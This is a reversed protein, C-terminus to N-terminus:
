VHILRMHDQTFQAVDRAQADSDKWIFSSPSNFSFGRFTSLIIEPM